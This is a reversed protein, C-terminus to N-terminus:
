EFGVVPTGKIAHCWLLRARAVRSVWKKGGDNTEAWWYQVNSNWNEHSAWLLMRRGARTSHIIPTFFGLAQRLSAETEHPLSEPSSAAARFAWAAPPLRSWAQSFDVVARRRSAQSEESAQSKRVEM